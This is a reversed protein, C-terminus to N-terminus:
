NIEFTRPLFLLKSLTISVTICLYDRSRNHGSVKHYSCVEALKEVAFCSKGM